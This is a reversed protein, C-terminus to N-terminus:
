APPQVRSKLAQLVAIAEDIVSADLVVRIFYGDESHLNRVPKDFKPFAGSTVEVRGSVTRDLAVPPLSEADRETGGAIPAKKGELRLYSAADKYVSEMRKAVESIESPSAGTLESLKPRFDDQHYDPGLNEYLRKLLEVRLVSERIASAKDAENLSDVIRQGLTSLAINKRSSEVLGYLRSIASWKYFLSGGHTSPSYGLETALAQFTKINKSRITRVIDLAETITLEPWDVGKIGKMTTMPLSTGIYFPGYLGLPIPRWFRQLAM